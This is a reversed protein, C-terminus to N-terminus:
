DILDVGFVKFSVVAVLVAAFPIAVLFGFVAVFAAAFRGRPLALWGLLLAMVAATAYIAISAITEHSM